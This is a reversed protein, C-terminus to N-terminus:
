LELSLTADGERDDIEGEEMEIINKLANERETIEEDEMEVLKKIM